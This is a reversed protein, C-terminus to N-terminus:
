YNQQSCFPRRGTNQFSNDRQWPWTKHTPQANKQRDLKLVSRIKNGEQDVVSVRRVNSFFQVAGMNDAEKAAMAYRTGSYHITVSKSEYENIKLNRYLYGVYGAFFTSIGESEILEKLTFDKDAFVNIKDRASSIIGSIEDTFFMIGTLGDDGGSFIEQMDAISKKDENTEDEWDNLWSFLGALDRRLNNYQDNKNRIAALDKDRETERANRESAGKQDLADRKLRYNLEEVKVNM